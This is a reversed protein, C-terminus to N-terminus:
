EVETPGLPQVEDKGHGRGGGQAALDLRELRAGHRAMRHGAVRGLLAAVGLEVIAGAAPAPDLPDDGADLCSGITDVGAEDDGVEGIARWAPEILPGVTLPALRFIMHFGPLPM